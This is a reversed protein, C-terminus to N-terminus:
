YSSPHLFIKYLMVRLSIQTQRLFFKAKFSAIITPPARHLNIKCVQHEIRLWIPILDPHTTETSSTLTSRDWLNSNVRSKLRVPMYRAWSSNSKTVQSLPLAQQTTTTIRRDSFMNSIQYPQQGQWKLRPWITLPLLNNSSIILPSIILWKIAKPCSNRQIETTTQTKSIPRNNNLGYNSYSLKELLAIYMLAILQCVRNWSSQLMISPTNCIRLNSIPSNLLHLLSAVQVLV